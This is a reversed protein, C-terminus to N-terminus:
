KYIQFLKLIEYYYHTKRAIEYFRALPDVCVKGLINPIGKWPKIHIIFHYIYPDKYSKLVKELNIKMRFHKYYNYPEFENCFGIVVYEPTFYGNKSHTIYNTPENVPFKLDNNYKIIFDEIKKSIKGKRLEELNCLIVGTNIFNNFSVNYKQFFEEDKYEPMGIYYKGNINYNYIKTLDKYILTDVDLYLIKKENKLLDQLIIRYFNATSWIASPIKFNKYKTGMDFFKIKCNSHELGIRNIVEKQEQTLNSVLIFFNIFTDKNQFLMISKMSVHTIYHYNNDFGYAVNIFNNYQSYISLKKLSIVIIIFLFILKKLLLSIYKQNNLLYKNKKLIYYFCTKCKLNKIIRM